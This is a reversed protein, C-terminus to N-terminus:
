GFLCIATVYWRRRRWCRHLADKATMGERAWLSPDQTRFVDRTVKFSQTTISVIHRLQLFPSSINLQLSPTQLTTNQHKVTPSVASPSQPYLTAPSNSFIRRITTLNRKSQKQSLSPTYTILKIYLSPQIQEYPSLM